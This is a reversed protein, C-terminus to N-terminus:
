KLLGDIEAARLTEALMDVLEGATTNKDCVKDQNRKIVETTYQAVGVSEADEIM